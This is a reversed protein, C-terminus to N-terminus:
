NTKLSHIDDNLMSVKEELNIIRSLVKDVKENNRAVGHQIGELIAVIKTLLVASEDSDNRNSIEKIDASDVVDLSSSPSSELSSAAVQTSNSNYDTKCKELESKAVIILEALAFPDCADAEFIKKALNKKIKNIRGIYNDRHVKTMGELLNYRTDWFYTICGEEIKEQLKDIMQLFLSSLRQTWFEPEQEMAEWMLFTKIYYSELLSWGQIDRMKKKTLLPRVPEPPWQPHKFEIVPVLDVDVPALDGPITIKLTMAPGSKKLSLEIQKYDIPLKVVVDMDFETAKGVRLGDFYSGAGCLRQFIADFLVDNQKMILILEDLVKMFHEVSAKREADESQQGSMPNNCIQSLGEEEFVDKVKRRIMVKRHQPIARLSPLLCM